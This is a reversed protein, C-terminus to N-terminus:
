KRVRGVEVPLGLLDRRTWWASCGLQIRKGPRSRLGYSDIAERDKGAKSSFLCEAASDQEISRGIRRGLSRDSKDRKEKVAKRISAISLAKKRKCQVLYQERPFHRDKVKSELYGTDAIRGRSQLQSRTSEEIIQQESRDTSFSGGSRQVRPRREQL